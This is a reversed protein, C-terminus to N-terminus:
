KLTATHSAITDLKIIVEQILQKNTAQGKLFQQIYEQNQIGVERNKLINNNVSNFSYFLSIIVVIVICAYMAVTFLNGAIRKIEESHSRRATKRRHKM